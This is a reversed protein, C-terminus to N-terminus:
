DSLEIADDETGGPKQAFQEFPADESNESEGDEPYYEGDQEYFVEQDDEDEEHEEHEEDFDDYDLLDEGEDEAYSEEEGQEFAQEFPLQDFDQPANASAFYSQQTPIPSSLNLPESGSPSRGHIQDRYARVAEPGKGYLHQPVFRSTRGWFAARENSLPAGISRGFMSQRFAPAPKSLSADSARHSFDHQMTSPSQRTLHTDALLERAQAIVLTSNGSVSRNGDFSRPTASGKNLAEQVARFRAICEEDTAPAPSPLSRRFTSSTSRRARKVDPEVDPVEEEDSSVSGFSRKRHKSPDLGMARLKFWDTETRDSPLTSKFYGESYGGGTSASTVGNTDRLTRVIEKGKEKAKKETSKSPKSIKRPKQVSLVRDQPKPLKQQRQVSAPTEPVKFNNAKGNPKEADHNTPIPASGPHEQVAEAEARLAMFQKRRQRAERKKKKKQIQQVWRVCVARMFALQRQREVEEKLRQQREYELREAIEKTETAVVHEVFQALLGNDPDTFLNNALTSLAQKYERVKREAEEQARRQAEAARAQVEQIRRQEAARAEQEERIRRQEAERAQQAIRAQEQARRQQEEKARRQEEEAKRRAEEEASVTPQPAAQSMPTLSSSWGIKGENSTDETPAQSTFSWSPPTQSTRQEDPKPSDFTSAPAWTRHLSSVTPSTAASAFPKTATASTSPAKIFPNDAKASSLPSGNASPSPAFQITNKSADFLGPRVTAPTAGRFATTTQTAPNTTGNQAAAAFPNPKTAVTDTHGLFPNAAMSSSPQFPTAFPNFQSTGTKGDQTNDPFPKTNGNTALGPFGTVSAPAVSKPTSDDPIFLSDQQEDEDRLDGTELNLESEVLGVDKAERVSMGQIIASFSREHRKSEVYRQSFFQPKLEPPVELTGQGLSNPDLYEVGDKMVFSFGYYGCFDKVQTTNDFGLPEMLKAPSWDDKPSPRDTKPPRYVCRLTELVNHRIKNFSMEAACAMLYSVQSSRVFRWFKAWNQQKTKFTQGKEMSVACNGARLINAAAQVRSNLKLHDPLRNLDHELKFHGWKLQLIIWYAMFEPQNPHEINAGKNDGWRHSFSTYCNTLQEVDNAHDYDSSTSRTMQHMTLLHFRACLELCKLYASVDKPKIKGVMDKRVSRSRDWIWSYTFELGDEDLRQILYQM